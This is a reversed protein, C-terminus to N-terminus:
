GTAIAEIAAKVKALLIAAKPVKRHGLEQFLRELEGADAAGAAFIAELELTSKGRYSRSVSDNQTPPDQEVKLLESVAKVRKFLNTARQANRHTLEQALRKLENADTYGAAFLAELEGISKSIYPRTM